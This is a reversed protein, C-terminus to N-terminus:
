SSSPCWVSTNDVTGPDHELSHCKVISSRYQITNGDHGYILSGLHKTSNEAMSPYKYLSVMLCAGLSMILVDQINNHRTDMATVEKWDNHWCTLYKQSNRTSKQAQSTNMDAM